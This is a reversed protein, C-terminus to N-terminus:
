TVEQVVIDGKEDIFKCKISCSEGFMCGDFGYYDLQKKEGIEKCVIEWKERLNNDHNIVLLVIGVSVITTTLIMFFIQWNDNKRKKKELIKGVPIEYM